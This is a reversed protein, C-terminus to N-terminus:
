LTVLTCNYQSYAIQKYPTLDSIRIDFDSVFVFSWFDFDLVGTSCYCRCNNQDNPNQIESKNRTESKTSQIKLM